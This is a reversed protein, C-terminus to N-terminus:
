ETSGCRHRGPRYNNKSGPPITLFKGYLDKEFIKNAYKAIRKSKDIRLYKENLGRFRTRDLADADKLCKFILLCRKHDKVRFINMCKYIEEDDLSHAAVAAQILRKDCDSLNVKIRALKKASRMGHAPEWNDNRRGIDHYSCAILLLETDHAPLETLMAILASYLMVREIHERGHVPSDYLADHELNKYAKMLLKGYDSHILKIVDPVDFLWGDKELKYLYQSIM